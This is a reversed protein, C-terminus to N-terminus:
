RGRGDRWVQAVVIPHCRLEDGEEHAALLRALIARDNRGVAILAGSDLIM